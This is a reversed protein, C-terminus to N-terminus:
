FGPLPSFGRRAARPASGVDASQLGRFGRFPVSVVLGEQGQAQGSGDQLGRFGRFPVSVKADAKAMRAAFIRCVGLVGSPSQFLQAAQQVTLGNHAQLGRFGRFPVSVTSQCAVHSFQVNSRCVGLVGSPSQFGTAMARHLDGSQGVRCVGLVGSPSQFAGLRRM